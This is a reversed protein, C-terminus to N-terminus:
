KAGISGFSRSHMAHFHWCLSTLRMVPPLRVCASPRMLALVNTIGTSWSMTKRGRSQSASCFSIGSLSNARQVADVAMQRQEAGIRGEQRLDVLVQRLQQRGARLRLSLFSQTRPWVPGTEFM